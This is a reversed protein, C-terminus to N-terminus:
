ESSLLGRRHEVPETLVFGLSLETNKLEKWGRIAALLGDIHERVASRGGDWMKRPCGPCEQMNILSGSQLPIPLRIAAGCDCKVEIERLDKVDITTVTKSTM